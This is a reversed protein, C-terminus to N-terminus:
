FQPSCFILRRELALLCNVLGPDVLSELTTRLMPVARPLIAALVSRNRSFDSDIPESGPLEARLVRLRREEAVRCVWVVFAFPLYGLLTTAASVCAVRM